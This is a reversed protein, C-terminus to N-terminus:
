HVKLFLLIFSLRCYWFRTLFIHFECVIQCINVNSFQLFVSFIVVIFLIIYYLATLWELPSGVSTIVFSLSYKAEMNASNSKKTETILSM